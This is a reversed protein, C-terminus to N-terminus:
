NSNNPEATQATPRAPPAGTRQALAQQVDALPAEVGMTRM